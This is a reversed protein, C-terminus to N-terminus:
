HFDIEDEHSYVLMRLMGNSETPRISCKNDYKHQSFASLKQDVSWWFASTQTPPEPSRKSIGAVQSLRAVFFLGLGEPRMTGLSAWVLCVLGM